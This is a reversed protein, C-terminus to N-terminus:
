RRARFSGSPHTHTQNFEFQSQRKNTKRNKSLNNKARRKAPICWRLSCMNTTALIKFYCFLDCSSSNLKKANERETCIANKAEFLPLTVELRVWFAFVNAFVPKSREELQSSVRCNHACIWDVCMSPLAIFHLKVRNQIEIWFDSVLECQVIRINAHICKDANLRKSHFAYM